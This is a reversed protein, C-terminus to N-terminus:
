SFMRCSRIVISSRSAASRRFPSTSVFCACKATNSSFPPIVTMGYAGLASEGQGKWPLCRALSVPFYGRKEDLVLRRALFPDRLSEVVFVASGAYTRHRDRDIIQGSESPVIFSLCYSIAM